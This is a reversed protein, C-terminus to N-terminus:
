AAPVQHDCASRQLGPSLRVELSEPGAQPDYGCDRLREAWFPLTAPWSGSGVASMQSRFGSPTASAVAPEGHRNGADIAAWHCRVCM